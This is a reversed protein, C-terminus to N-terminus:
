RKIWIVAIYKTGTIVPLGAHYANEIKEGSETTNEWIVLKGLEPKIIQSVKPFETEGGTFGENLYILATKRRNRGDHHLKYEGSPNYKVFHLKEQNTEPIDTLEVIRQKIKRVLAHRDNDLWVVKAKRFGIKEGVTQGFKLEQSEGIGILLQCEDETLFNQFEEIM